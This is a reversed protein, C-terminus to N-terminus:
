RCFVVLQGVPSIAILNDTDKFSMQVVMPLTTNCATGFTRNPINGAVLPQPEVTRAEMAVTPTPFKLDLGPDETFIAENIWVRDLVVVHDSDGGILSLTVAVQAQADPHAPDITAVAKSVAPRAFQDSTLCGPAVVALVAAIVPKMRNVIKTKTM